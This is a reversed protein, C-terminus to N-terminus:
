KDSSKTIVKTKKEIKEIKFSPGSFGTDKEIEEKSFLGKVFKVIKKTTGM